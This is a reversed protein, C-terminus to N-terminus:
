AATAAEPSCFPFAGDQVPLRVRGALRRVLEMVRAIEGRSEDVSEVEDCSPRRGGAQLGTCLSEDAVLRSAGSGMGINRVGNHFPSAILRLEDTVDPKRLPM